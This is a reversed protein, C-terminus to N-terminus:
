NNVKKKIHKMLGWLGGIYVCMEIRGGILCMVMIISVLISVLIESKKESSIKVGFENKLGGFGTKNFEETLAADEEPSLAGSHRKELMVTMWETHESTGAKPPYFVLSGQRIEENYKKVNNEFDKM